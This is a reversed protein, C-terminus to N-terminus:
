EGQAWIHWVLGARGKCVTSVWGSSPCRMTPQGKCTCGGWEVWARIGWVPDRRLHIGNECLGAESEGGSSVGRFAWGEARPWRFEGNNWWIGRDMYHNRSQIMQFHFLLSSFSFPLSLIWENQELHEQGATCSFQKPAKLFSQHKAKKRSIYSQGDAKEFVGWILNIRLTPQFWQELLSLCSYFTPTCTLKHIQLISCALFGM